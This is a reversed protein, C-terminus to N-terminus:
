DQSLLFRNHTFTNEVVEGIARLGTKWQVRLFMTNNVKEKVRFNRSM